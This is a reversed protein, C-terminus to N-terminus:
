ERWDEVNLGSVRRFEGTNSTVLVLGHVLATAAILVDYAGIPTGQKRLAAHIAGASKAEVNSFPLITIRSFLAEMVPGIKAGRQPNLQLGYEVEM